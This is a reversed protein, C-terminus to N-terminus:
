KISRKGALVVLLLVPVGLLATIIFFQSYGLSDVISGSYGALLKPLLTMVSSFIAYQMASFSVNTLGSLFAVFAAGALGACLNDAAVVTYM